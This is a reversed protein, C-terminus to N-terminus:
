RLVKGNVIMNKCFSCDEFLNHESLYAKLELVAKPGVTIMRSPEIRHLWFDAIFSEILEEAKSATYNSSESKQVKLALQLTKAEHLPADSLAALIRKYAAIDNPTYSTAAQAISDGNTNVVGWIYEDTALYYVRMLDLEFPRLAQQVPLIFDFM